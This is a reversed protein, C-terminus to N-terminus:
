QSKDPVRIKVEFALLSCVNNKHIDCQGQRGTQVRVPILMQIQLTQVRVPTVKKRQGQMGTQVRMPLEVDEEPNAPDTSESSNGEEESRANRDTSENSDVDVDPNAPDTSESSNGEEESRADRDTSESSSLM